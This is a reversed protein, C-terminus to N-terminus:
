ADVDLDIDINKEQERKKWQKLFSFSLLANAIIVAGYFVLFVQMIIMLTDILGKATELPVRQSRAFEDMMGESFGEKFEPLALGSILLIGGILISFGATIRIGDPTNEKLTFTSEKLSRQLSASLIAHVFVGSLVIASVLGEAVAGNLMAFFYSFLLIGTIFLNIGTLVKFLKFRFNM